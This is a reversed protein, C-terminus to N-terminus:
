AELVAEITEEDQESLGYLERVAEDIQAFPKTTMSTSIGALCRISRDRQAQVPVLLISSLSSLILILASGCLQQTPPITQSEKEPVRMKAPDRYPRLNGQAGRVSGYPRSERM